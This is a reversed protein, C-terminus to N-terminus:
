GNKEKYDKCYKLHASDIYIIKSQVGEEGWVVEDDEFLERLALNANSKEIYNDSDGYSYISYVKVKERNGVEEIAQNIQQRLELLELYTKETLDM